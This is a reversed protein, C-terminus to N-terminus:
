LFRGKDWAFLPNRIGRILRSKFEDVGLLNIFVGIRPGQREGILALYIIQFFERIMEPYHLKAAEYAWYQQQQDDHDPHIKELLFELSEHIKVVDFYDFEWSWLFEEVEYRTFM